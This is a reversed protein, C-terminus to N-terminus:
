PFVGHLLQGLLAEVASAGPETKAAEWPTIQALGRCPQKWWLQLARQEGDMAQNSLAVLQQLRYLRDSETANLKGAKKRLLLTREAINLYEAMEKMTLGLTDQLESVQTFPLGRRLSENLRQWGGQLSARKSNQRSLTAAM